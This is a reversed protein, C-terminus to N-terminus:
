ERRLFERAAAMVPRAREARETLKLLATYYERAKARQGAAAASQAAGAVANLRGPSMALVTEYEALARAAQGSEKLLDALIERAPLLAGPTVPHKDIADERAAAARLREIGEEKKGEAFALVAAAADYQTSIAGSWDYDPTKPLTDRIQGLGQIAARAVDLEGGRAAGIARAYLTLAEMNRFRKWDFWQPGLELRAAAKWDQRELAYRAPAAVFAYAAAFQQEDLRTIAAMEDLVRRATSDRGEQLYAYVLYDMAHLQDFSGGGGSTRQAQKVGADASAINSSISEDWLALRTFIHSPMHLAHASDPAIKAYSRAATLGLTALAPFDTSHIIYHAVGPHRENRPLVTRLIEAAQKHKTYTKDSPDLYGLALIQLAHFIAAEDDDPYKSHVKAMAAEYAAARTRHPTSTRDKYFAALAAIYDRERASKSPTALARDIAEAGQKLEEQSPPAWIPHYWTMAEGWHAMACGPDAQAAERFTSRAEQYGFSHVLAVGRVFLKQAAETCTTPFSVSGLGAITPVQRVHQQQGCVLAGALVCISVLRM